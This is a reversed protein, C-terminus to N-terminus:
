KEDSIRSGFCSPTFLFSNGFDLVLTVLGREEGSCLARRAAPNGVRESQESPNISIRSLLENRDM